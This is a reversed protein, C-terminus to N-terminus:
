STLREQLNAAADTLEHAHVIVPAEEDGRWFPDIWIRKRLSSKPGCPQNRHHGRVLVRVGIRGAQGTAIYRTVVERADVLVPQNVEVYDLGRQAQARWKQGKGPKKVVVPAMRDPDSLSIMTSLAIRAVCNWMRWAPKDEEKGDFDNLFSTFSENCAVPRGVIHTRQDNSLAILTIFRGDHADLKDCVLIRTTSQASDPFPLIGAPMDIAFAPWPSKVQAPDITEDSWAFAAAQLGTLRVAHFGGRAWAAVARCRWAGRALVSVVDDRTMNDLVARVWGHPANVDFGKEKLLYPAEVDLLAGYCMFLSFDDFGDHKTMLADLDRVYAGLKRRRDSEDTCGAFMPEIPGHRRGLAQIEAHTRDDDVKQLKSRRVSFFGPDTM